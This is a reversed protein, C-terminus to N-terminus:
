TSTRHSQHHRDLSTPPHNRRVHERVTSPGLRSCGPPLKAGVRGRGCCCRRRWAAAGDGCWGKAVGKGGRLVVGVVAGEGSGGSWSAMAEGQPKHHGPLGLHGAAAERLHGQAAVRQACPHHRGGADHTRTHAAPSAAPLLLPLSALYPCAFHLPAPLRVTHSSHMYIRRSAHRMAAAATISFGCGTSARPTLGTHGHAVAM